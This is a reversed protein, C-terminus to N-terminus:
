PAGAGPGFEGNVASRAKGEAGGIDVGRWFM